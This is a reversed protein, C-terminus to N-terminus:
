CNLSGQNSIIIWVNVKKEWLLLTQWCQESFRKSIFKGELTSPQEGLNAFECILLHFFSVIQCKESNEWDCARVCLCVRVFPSFHCKGSQCMKGAREMKNAQQRGMTTAWHPRHVIDARWFTENRKVKANELAHLLAPFIFINEDTLTLTYTNCMSQWPYVIM